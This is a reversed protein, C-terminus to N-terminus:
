LETAVNYTEKDIQVVGELINCHAFNDWVIVFLQVRQLTIALNLLECNLLVIKGQRKEDQMPSM